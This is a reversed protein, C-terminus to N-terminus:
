FASGLAAAVERLPLDFVGIATGFMAAAAVIAVAIKVFDGWTLDRYEM